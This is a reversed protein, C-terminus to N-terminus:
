LAIEMDQHCPLAICRGGPRSGRCEEVMEEIDRDTREQNHHFLGLRAVGADLALRLADTYVSHGWTRTLM